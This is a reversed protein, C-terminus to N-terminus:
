KKKAKKVMKKKTAKKPECKCDEVFGFAKGLKCVFCNCCKGHEM